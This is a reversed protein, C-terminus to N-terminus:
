LARPAEPVPAGDVSGLYQDLERKIQALARRIELDMLEQVRMTDAEKLGFAVVVEPGLKQALARLQGTHVQYVRAFVLAVAGRDVLEGRERRVNLEQRDADAIKKRLDAADWTEGDLDMLRGNRGSTHGNGGPPPALVVVPPHPDATPAPAPPPPPTSAAPTRGTVRQAQRRQRRPNALYAANLPDDPNM